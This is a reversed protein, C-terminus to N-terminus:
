NIQRHKLYHVQKMFNENKDFNIKIEPNKNMKLFKKIIQEVTREDDVTPGFNFSKWKSNRKFLDKKSIRFLYHSM